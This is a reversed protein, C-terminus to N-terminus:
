QSEPTQKEQIQAQQIWYQRIMEIMEIADEKEREPIYKGFKSFIHGCHDAENEEYGGCVGLMWKFDFINKKFKFTYYKLDLYEFESTCEIRAPEKGLEGPHSLWRKMEQTASEKQTM